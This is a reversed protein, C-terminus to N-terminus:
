GALRGLWSDISRWTDHAPDIVHFHDVREVINTIDDGLLEATETYEISMDIPVAEDEHGHVLLQPIALPLLHLPSAALYVDPQEAASSGFLDNTAHNSLQLGDALFLDSVPALAIVGDVDVEPQAAAWLALHGGASHGLLVTPGPASPLAGIATLVDSSMEPWVGDISDETVRRYEINSVLWGDAALHRAVPENLDLGYTARWYGGHISIVMGRPNAPTYLDVFQSPHDGYVRREVDFDDTM